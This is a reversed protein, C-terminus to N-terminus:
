IWVTGSLTTNEGNCTEQLTKKKPVKDYNDSIIRPPDYATEM